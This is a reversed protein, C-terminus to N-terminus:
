DSHNAWVKQWDDSDDKSWDREMYRAKEIQNRRDEAEMLYTICHHLRETNENAFGLVMNCNHCLVGRIMGNDHDHDVCLRHTKGCIVCAGFADTLRRKDVQSLDDYQKGVFFEPEQLFDRHKYKWAKTM